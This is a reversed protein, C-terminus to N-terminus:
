AGDGEDVFALAEITVEAGLRRPMQKLGPGDLRVSVVRARLDPLAGLRDVLAFVDEVRAAGADVRLRLRYLASDEGLRESEPRAARLTDLDLDAGARLARERLSAEALAVTPADILVAREADWADSAAELAAAWEPALEVLRAKRAVLDALDAHRAAAGTAPAEAGNAGAGALFLRDVAFGVLLLLFVGALLRTRANSM